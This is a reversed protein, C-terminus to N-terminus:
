VQGALEAVQGVEGGGRGAAQGAPEVRRADRDVPLQGRGRDQSIRAPQV